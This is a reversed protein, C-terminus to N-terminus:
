SPKSVGSTRSAALRRPDTATFCCQDRGFCPRVALLTTSAQDFSSALSSIPSGPYWVSPSSAGASRGANDGDLLLSVEQFNQQLLAQQCLSLSCGMLGVVCPLGAQHAKICDFFGEVVVVSDGHAAAQHLNFLV